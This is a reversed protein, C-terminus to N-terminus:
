RRPAPARRRWGDPRPSGRRPRSAREEAVDAEADGIEFAAGVRRGERDGALFQAVAALRRRGDVVVARALVGAHEGDGFREAHRGRVVDIAIMRHLDCDAGADLGHMPSGSLVSRQPVSPQEIGVQAAGSRLKAAPKARM